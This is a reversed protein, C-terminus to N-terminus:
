TLARSAFVNSMGLHSGGVSSSRFTHTHAAPHQQGDFVCVENDEEEESREAGSGPGTRRTPIDLAIRPTRFNWHHINAFLKGRHTLIVKWKILGAGTM